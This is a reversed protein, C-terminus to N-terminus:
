KAGRQCFYRVPSAGGVQCFKTPVDDGECFMFGGSFMRRPPLVELFYWYISKGIEVREGSDLKAIFESWRGDEYEYPVAEGATETTM